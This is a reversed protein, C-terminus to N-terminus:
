LTKRLRDLLDNSDVNGSREQGVHNENSFM